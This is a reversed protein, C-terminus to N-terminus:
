NRGTGKVQDHIFQTIAPFSSEDREGQDKRGVKQWNARMKFSNPEIIKKTGQNTGV